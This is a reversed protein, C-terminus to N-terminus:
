GPTIAIRLPSIELLQNDIWGCRTEAAHAGFSLFLNLALLTLLKM